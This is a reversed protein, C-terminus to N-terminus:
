EDEGVLGVKMGLPLKYGQAKLFKEYEYLMDIISLHLPVEVWVKGESNNEPDFIFFNSM